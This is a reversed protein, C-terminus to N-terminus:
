VRGLHYREYIIGSCFTILLLVMPRPSHLLIYLLVFSKNPFPFYDGSTDSILSETDILILRNYVFLFMTIFMGLGCLDDYDDDDSDDCTEVNEASNLEQCKDLSGHTTQMYTNARM